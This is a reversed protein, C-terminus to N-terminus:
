PCATVFQYRRSRSYSWEWMGVEQWFVEFNPETVKTSADLLMSNNWPYLRGYTLLFGSLSWTELCELMLYM